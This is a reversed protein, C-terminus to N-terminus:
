YQEYFYDNNTGLDTFFMFVVNSCFTSIKTNVKTAFLYILGMVPGSLGRPNWFSSAGWM